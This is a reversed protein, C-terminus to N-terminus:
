MQTPCQTLPPGYKFPSTHNSNFTASCGSKSCEINAQYQERHRMDFQARYRAYEASQRTTFQQEGLQPNTTPIIFLQGHFPWETGVFREVWVVTKNHIYADFVGSELATVLRGMCLLVAELAGEPITRNIKTACVNDLTVLVHQLLYNVFPTVRELLAPTLNSNDTGDIAYIISSMKENIMNKLNVVHGLFLLGSSQPRMDSIYNLICKISAIMNRTATTDKIPGLYLSM